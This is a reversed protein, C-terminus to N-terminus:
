RRRFPIVAPGIPMGDSYFRVSQLPEGNADVASAVLTVTEGLAFQRRELDGQLVVQPGADDSSAAAVNIPETVTEHGGNVDTAVAKLVFAGAKSPIWEKRDRAATSVGLSQDPGVGDSVFFEVQQYAGEAAEVAVYLEVVQNQVVTIVTPPSLLFVGQIPAATAAKLITLTAQSPAGISDPGSGAPTLNLLASVAGQTPSNAIIPVAFAKPAADGEAWTLTGSAPQYDVGAVASGDASAYSVSLPGGSGGARVASITAQGVNNPVTYGAASFSVRGADVRTGAGSLGFIAVNRGFGNSAPGSALNAFAVSTLRRKADAASLPLDIEYLRPNDIANTRRNVRGFSSRAVPSGGEFNDAVRARGQTGPGGDAFNLTFALDSADNLGTALLALEGFSAPAALALSGGSAGGAADTLFLVNPGSPPQLAFSANPNAESVFSQGAPLGVAPAKLNFGPSYFANVGDLAISTTKKAKGSEAIADQNFGTVAIPGLLNQPGSAGSVAFIAVKRELGNPAPGPSLNAFDIGTLQRRADSASLTLDVEFLRPQNAAQSANDLGTQRNVRGFGLLAVAGSGTFNDPAVFNGTVPAGGDAFRLTYGVPNSSDLGTVLVSLASFSGPYSLQLRGASVGSQQDTLLLVNNDTAAQFLFTANPNAFSVFSSGAPLGVGPAAPNFRLAYYDYATDIAGSTTGAVTSPDRYLGEAIVDQNFGTLILPRVADQARSPRALWCVAVTALLCFAHFKM